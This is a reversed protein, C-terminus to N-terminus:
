VDEATILGKKVASYYGWLLHAALGRYPKWNEARKYLANVGLRTEAKDAFRLGEQLALDGAPFIDTRGECGMLYADATWRGVGIIQILKNAANEDDLQRLRDFDLVGSQVAEAIARIYRSKQGSLGLSRLYAQDKALVASPTLTSFGNRVRAWIAAASATSVQQELVLQILGSFGRNRTRWDFPPTVKDARALARDRKALLHRASAIEEATHGFM